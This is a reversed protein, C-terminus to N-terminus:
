SNWSPLALDARAFLNRQPGRNEVPGASGASLGYSRMLAGFRDLDAVSVPVAREADAPQGVYPGDAPATLRQLESAVFVHLRDRVLPGGFSVGIQAQEYPS